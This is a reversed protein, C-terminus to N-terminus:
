GSFDASLCPHTFRSNELEEVGKFSALIQVIRKGVPIVLAPIAM